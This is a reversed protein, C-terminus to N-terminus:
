VASRDRLWREVVGLVSLIAFALVATVTALLYAGSGCAIGIAGVVWISAATTIGEISGGSHVICGGGLFGIGATIGQVIRTPDGRAAHEAVAAGVLELSVLTFAAAGLSVMMHTRLGAAKHRMEREFGLLGGCIMAFLLRAVLDPASITLSM